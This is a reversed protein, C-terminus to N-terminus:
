IRLAPWNAATTNNAGGIRKTSPFMFEGTAGAYVGDRPGAPFVDRNKVGRGAFERERGRTFYMM